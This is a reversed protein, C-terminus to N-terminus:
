MTTKARISKRMEELSLPVLEDDGDDDDDVIAPPEVGGIEGLQPGTGLLGKPAPPKEALQSAPDFDRVGEDGLSANELILRHAEAEWKETARANVLTLQKLLTNTREEIHGLYQLVNAEDVEKEGLTNDFVSPDCGIATFADAILSKMTAVEDKAHTSQVLLEDRRRETVALKSELKSLALKREASTRASDEKHKVILDQMESIREKQKEINNNLESVLNFLSFNRVETEIFTDVLKENDTIGTIEKITGFVSDYEAILQEPKVAADQRKKREKAAELLEAQRSRGKKGMFEKLSREHEINRNLEKLELSSQLHEKEAKEKLAEMKALAETRAEHAQNSRDTLEAMTSKLVEIEHELKTRLGVFTKREKTLHDIAIRLKGNVALQDDYSNTATQVRNELRAIQRDAANKDKSQALVKAKNLRSATLQKRIKAAAKDLEAVREQENKVESLYGDYQLQLNTVQEKSKMVAGMEQEAATLERKLTENDRKLNALLLEQKRLTTTSEIQITKKEENLRRSERRLAAADKVDSM